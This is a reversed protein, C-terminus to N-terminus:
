GGCCSAPIDDHMRGGCMSVCWTSAEKRLFLKFGTHSCIQPWAVCEGCHTGGCCAKHACAAGSVSVLPRHETWPNRITLSASARVTKASCTPPCMRRRTDLVAVCPAHVKPHAALCCSNTANKSLIHKLIMSTYSMQTPNPRVTACCARVQWARQLIGVSLRFRLRSLSRRYRAAHQRYAYM